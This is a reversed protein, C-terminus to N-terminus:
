ADTGADLTYRMIIGMLYADVAMTDSADGTVRSFQFFTIDNDAPTGGTVTITPALYCNWTTGGTDAQQAANGYTTNLNDGDGFHAKRARWVVGFNTATAPHLWQMQFECDGLNWSKPLTIMVDCHQETAADFALVPITPKNAASFDIFQFTAGDTASSILSQAPLWTTHKGQLLPPNVFKADTLTADAINANTITLNAIKTGTVAGDVIEATNIADNAVNANQVADTALETNGVAGPGIKAQTVADDLIKDTEVANTALAAADVAGAALKASTVSDDVLEATDIALDAMEANGVANDAMQANAVANDAIVNNTVKDVM